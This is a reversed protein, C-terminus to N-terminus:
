LQIGYQGPPPVNRKIDLYSQDGYSLKGLLSFAKANKGLKAQPNYTGPGPVCPDPKSENGPMVQSGFAERGTGFCYTTDGKVHVAFTTTTQNPKFVTPINYRDPSPNTDIIVFTLRDFLNLVSVKRSFIERRLLGKVSELHHHSKAWLQHFIM